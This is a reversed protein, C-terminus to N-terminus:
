PARPTATLAALYSELHEREFRALDWPERTLRHVHEPRLVYTFAALTRAGVRVPLELREYWDGEYDDLRGLDGDELGEFLTGDLEEGSAALVGPYPRDAIRYRAYGLLTAARGTLERGVVRALIAGLQLTGYAYLRHTM